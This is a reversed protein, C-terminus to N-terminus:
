LDRTPTRLDPAEARSEARLLRGRGSDAAGDAPRRVATSEWAVAPVSIGADAGGSRAADQRRLLDAAGIREQFRCDHLTKAAGVTGRRGGAAVTEGAACEGARCARDLPALHAARRGAGAPAPARESREAYAVGPRVDRRRLRRCLRPRSIRDSTADHPLEM